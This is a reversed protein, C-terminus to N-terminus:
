DTDGEVSSPLKLNLPSGAGFLDGKL